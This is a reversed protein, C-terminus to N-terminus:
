DDFCFFATFREILHGFCVQFAPHEWGILVIEERIIGSIFTHLLFLVYSQHRHQLM